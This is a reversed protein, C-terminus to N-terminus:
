FEPAILGYDGDKRRYLVSVRETEADLFVVFEHRSTELRLAAEDLAMPEIELHTTKVVRPREGARLSERALVEIPWQRQAALERGARRRRDVSRKRSRRAQEEISDAADTAADRLESGESRSHFHGNRHSVHVEAACLHKDGAGGELVVRVEVPERLFRLSRAIREEVHSRLGDDLSVNRAVYEIQM